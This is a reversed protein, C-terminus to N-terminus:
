NLRSIFHLLIFSVLELVLDTGLVSVLVIKLQAMLGSGPDPVTAEDAM